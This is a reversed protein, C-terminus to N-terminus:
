GFPACRTQGRNANHPPRAVNLVAPGDPFVIGKEVSADQVEQSATILAISSLTCPLVGSRARM